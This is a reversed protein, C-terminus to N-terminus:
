SRSGAARAAATAGALAPLWPSPAFPGGEFALTRGTLADAPWATMRAFAQNVFLIHQEADLLLVGHPLASLARLVSVDVLGAPDGTRKM